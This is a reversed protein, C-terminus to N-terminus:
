RPDREIIKQKEEVIKLENDFKQIKWVNEARGSVTHRANQVLFRSNFKAIKVDPQDIVILVVEGELSSRIQDWNRFFYGKDRRLFEKNVVGKSYYDVQDGYCALSRELDKDQTAELCGQVFSVVEARSIAAYPSPMPKRPEPSPERPPKPPEVPESAAGPDATIPASTPKEERALVAAAADRETQRTDGPSAERQVATLDVLIPRRDRGLESETSYTIVAEKNRLRRALGSLAEVKQKNMGPDWYFILNPAYVGYKDVHLVTTEIQKETRVPPPDGAVAETKGFSASVVLFMGLWM